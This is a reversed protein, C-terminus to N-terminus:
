FKHELLCMYTHLINIQPPKHINLGNFHDNQQNLTMNLTLDLIAMLQALLILFISNITKTVRRSVASYASEIIELMMTNLDHTILPRVLDVAFM